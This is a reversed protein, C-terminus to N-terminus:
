KATFCGPNSASDIHAYKIQNKYNNATTSCYTNSIPGRLQSDSTFIDSDTTRGAPDNAPNSPVQSVVFKNSAYIKTLAYCHEFMGHVNTVKSTDFSTVDLTSVRKCYAFMGMMDTVKATNFKSVNISTAAICNLFMHKMKVVKSTNFHALNLSTISECFAFMAEMTTVNSTNFTISNFNSLSTLKRCALFMSTMDTVNSTNFNKFDLSTVRECNAFMAAMDRVMSTDINAFDFLTVNRFNSFLNNGTSFYTKGVSGVFLTQGEVWAKVNGQRTGNQVYTVDQKISAKNYRTDIDGRTSNIFKIQTLYTNKITTNFTSMINKEPLINYTPKVEGTYNGKGRITFTVVTNQYLSGVNDSVTQTYDTNKRLTQRSTSYPIPAVITPEQTIASGTYTVDSLGSIFVGKEYLGRANTQTPLSIDYPVIKWTVSKTTDSGDSWKYDNKNIIDFKVTYTGVNMASQTSGSTNIKVKTSDFTIGHNQSANNFIKDPPSKPIPILEKEKAPTPALQSQTEMIADIKNVINYGDESANDTSVIAVSVKPPYEIVDQIIIEYDKNSNVVEAFRRVLSEAFIKKDIKYEGEVFDCKYVNPCTNNTPESITYDSSKTFEWKGNKKALDSCLCFGTRFHGIDRADYMAAEVTNKMTTYDFQNTVTINGFLSIVLFGFLGLAIIGVGWMAAKM